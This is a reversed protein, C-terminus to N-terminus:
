WKVFRQTTSHNGESLEIFYIGTNLQEINLTHERFNDDHLVPRGSVDYLTFSISSQNYNVNLLGQAPNPFISLNNDALTNVSTFVDNNYRLMLFNNPNAPFYGGGVLLKGDPQLLSTYAYVPGGVEYFFLGSNGVSQDLVGNPSYRAMQIKPFDGFSTGVLIIKGNSEVNLASVIEKSPLNTTITIGNTGFSSDLSGDPMYSYLAFDYDDPQNAYNFHDGGVLIKNNAQVVIARPIDFSGAGTQTQVLGNFGFTSDLTGVPLLRMLGLSGDPMAGALIIKNDPQFSICNITNFSNCDVIGNLGFSSDVIGSDTFRIAILHETAFDRFAFLIHNDAQENWSFGTNKKLILNTLAGIPFTSDVLGNAYLRMVAITDADNGQGIIGGVGLIKTDSQVKISLGYIIENNLTYLAQGNNGFTNDISGDNNYRNFLFNGLGAALIKGDPQLAIMNSAGSARYNGQVIGDSNFTSDLALTQAVSVKITLLLAILYFLKLPKM